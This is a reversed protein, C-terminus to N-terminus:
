RDPSSKKHSFLQEHAVLRYPKARQPGSNRHNATIRPSRRGLHDLGYRFLTPLAHIDLPGDVLFGCHFDPGPRRNGARAHQDRHLLDPQIDRRIRQHAQIVHAHLAPHHHHRRVIGARYGRLGLLVGSMEPAVGFEGHEVRRAGLLRVRHYGVGEVARFLDPTRHEETRSRANAVAVGGDGHEVRHGARGGSTEFLVSPAPHYEGPESVRVVDLYLFPQRPERVLKRVIM